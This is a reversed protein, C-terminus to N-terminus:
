KTRADTGMPYCPKPDKNEILSKYPYYGDEYATIWWDKIKQKVKEFNETISEPQINNKLYKAFRQEYKAKDEKLKEAYDQIHKGSLRESEPLVDETFPIELGSDIAGKLFAYVKGKHLTDNM